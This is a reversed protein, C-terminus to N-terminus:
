KGGFRLKFHMADSKRNFYFVQASSTCWWLDVFENCWKTLEMRNKPDEQFTVTGYDSWAKRLIRSWQRDRLYGHPPPTFGSEGPAKPESMVEIYAQLARHLRSQSRQSAETDSNM